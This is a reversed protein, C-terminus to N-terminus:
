CEITIWPRRAHKEIVRLEATNTDGILITSLFRLNQSLYVSGPDPLQMAIAASIFAGSLM